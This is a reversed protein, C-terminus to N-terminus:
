PQDVTHPQEKQCPAASTDDPRCNVRIRGHDSLRQCGEVRGLLGLHPRRDLAGWGVRPDIQRVPVPLHHPLENTLAEPQRRNPAAAQRVQMLRGM